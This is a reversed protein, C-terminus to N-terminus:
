ISRPRQLQGFCFIRQLDGAKGPGPLERAIRKLFSYGVKLVGLVRQTV